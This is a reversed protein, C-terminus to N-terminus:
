AGAETLIRGSLFNKDKLVPSTMRNFHKGSPNGGGFKVHDKM